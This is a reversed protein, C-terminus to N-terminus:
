EKIGKLNGNLKWEVSSHLWFAQAGFLTKACSQQYCALQRTRRSRDRNMTTISTTAKNFFGFVTSKGSEKELRILLFKGIRIFPQHCIQHCFGRATDQHIANRCSYLSIQPEQRLLLDLSAGRISSFAGTTHGPTIADIYERHAFGSFIGAQASRAVQPRVNELPGKKFVVQLCFFWFTDPWVFSPRSTMWARARHAGIRRKESQVAGRM